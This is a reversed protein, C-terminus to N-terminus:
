EILVPSAEMMPDITDKKLPYRGNTQFFKLMVAFALRNKETNNSHVLELEESDLTFLSEPLFTNIRM